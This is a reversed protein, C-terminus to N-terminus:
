AAIRGLASEGRRRAQALVWHAVAEGTRGPRTSRVIIAIRLM